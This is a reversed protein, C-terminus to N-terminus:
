RGKLENVVLGYSLLLLMTVNVVVGYKHWNHAGYAVSGTIQIILALIVVTFFYIDLKRM